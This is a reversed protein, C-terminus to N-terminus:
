RPEQRRPRGAGLIFHPTIDTYPDDDLEARVPRPGSTTLVWAYDPSPIQACAICAVRLLGDVERAQYGTRSLSHVTRKCTAPILGVRDGTIPDTRYRM